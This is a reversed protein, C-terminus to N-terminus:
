TLFKPTMRSVIQSQEGCGALKGAFGLRNKKFYIGFGAM